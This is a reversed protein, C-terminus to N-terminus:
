IPVRVERGVAAAIQAKSDNERRNRALITADAESLSNCLLPVAPMFSVQLPFNLSRM